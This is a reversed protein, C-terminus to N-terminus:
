DAIPGLVTHADQRDQVCAYDRKFTRVIYRSVERAEEAWRMLITESPCRSRLHIGGRTIEIAEKLIDVKLTKKGLFREL